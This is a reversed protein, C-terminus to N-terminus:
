RKRGAAGVADVEEVEVAWMACMNILVCHMRVCVYVM